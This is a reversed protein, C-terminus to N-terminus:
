RWACAVQHETEPDSRVLTSLLEGRKGVASAALTKGSVSGNQCGGMRDSFVAEAQMALSDDYKLDLCEGRWYSLLGIYGQDDESISSGVHRQRKRWNEQSM